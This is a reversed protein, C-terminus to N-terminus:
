AHVCKIDLPTNTCLAHAVKTRACKYIQAFVSKSIGMKQGAQIMTLGDIDKYRLAQLEDSLLLIPDASSAEGMLPGFRECVKSVDMEIVRNIKRRGMSEVYSM